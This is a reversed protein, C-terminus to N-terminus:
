GMLRFQPNNTVNEDGSRTNRDSRVGHIGVACGFCCCWSAMLFDSQYSQNISENMGWVTPLKRRPEQVQVKGRAVDQVIM